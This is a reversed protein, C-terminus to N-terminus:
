RRGELRQKAGASDPKLKLAAQWAQRAGQEDHTLALADGHLIWYAARRPRKRVIGITFRVAEAGQGRTLYIRALGAMAHHAKPDQELVEHFSREAGDLDRARLQQKARKMLGSVSSVSTRGAPAKRQRTAVRAAPPPAAPPPRARLETHAEGAIEAASASAPERMAAPPIAGGAPRPRLSPDPGAAAKAVRHAEAAAAESLGPLEVEPPFAPPTPGQEAPQTPNIWLAAVGGLMVMALAAVVMWAYRAHVSAGAPKAPLAHVPKARSTERSGSAAPPRLTTQEDAGPEPEQRAHQSRENGTSTAQPERPRQSSLVPVAVTGPPASAGARKAAVLGAPPPPEGVAPFAASSPRQSEVSAAPREGNSVSQRFGGADGAGRTRSTSQALEAGRSTGQAPEADTARDAGVAVEAGDGATGSDQAPEGAHAARSGVRTETTDSWAARPSASVAARPLQVGQGAVGAPLVSIKIPRPEAEGASVADDVPLMLNASEPMARQEVRVRGSAIALLVSLANAGEFTTRQADQLEARAGVVLREALDLELTVRRNAITVHLTRGSGVLARLLRGPGVLELRTDFGDRGRAFSRLSEDVEVIPAIQAALRGVARGSVSSPWLEEWDAILVSAWRLRVDARLKSIVKFGEREFGAKDLVVVLPDLGRVRTLASGHGDTVAVVAQERRLAQALADTAAPDNSVLLVRLGALVAADAAASQGSADLVRLRASLEEQFEYELPEASEVLPRLRVVFDEIAESVPRGGTLVLRLAQAKVCPDQPHVSLIGSRLAGSLAGILEDLTTEVLPGHMRGSRDPLEGLLESIQQALADASAQRQLVAVAGHRFATLDSALSADNALLAVPIVATQVDGSLSRLVQTAGRGSAQGVLLVLDPALEHVLEPAHQGSCTAVHFSRRRLGQCLAEVMPEGDGALLITCANRARATQATAM